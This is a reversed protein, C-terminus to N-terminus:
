QEEIQIEGAPAGEVQGHVRISKDLGTIDLLIENSRRPSTKVLAPDPIGGLDLVVNRFGTVSGLQSNFRLVYQGAVHILHTLDLDFSGNKWNGALNRAWVESVANWDAPPAVGTDYVALTRIAPKAAFRTIVLRVAAVTVPPIPQIRKHGIATGEGLSKWRGDALGELRYARVREGLGIEEQLVVTDIRGPQPLKLQLSPGRGHTMAVPHGFRRRLEDGFARATACDPQPLLGKRNAPINLLLQAGRGVSRYYISLLQPVTLVKDANKTSWFWDPRRISVDAENPMWVSGDPNGDLATATGSRADAADIGNWCPYPAFGNENGVWRITAAPGQFIMANPQYRKILDTVPTVTSGDFWIEVLEGYRSFVETLQERYMANYKHQLEPTKCVGGTGAGFHDDRPCVYVGLPLGRKRCSAAIEALVDGKGNKWPTNRISYDTTHTQWMCFGGQHKAVFVVYRAGFSLATDVWQDTNLDVPDIESLPTSLNDSEVDQWTNPAFHVFMGCELDQWAQQQPTPRALHVDGGNDRRSDLTEALIGGRPLASSSLSLAALQYLFDRRELIAGESNEKLDIAGSSPLRQM